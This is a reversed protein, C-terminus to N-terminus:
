HSMCVSLAIAQFALWKSMLPWFQLDAEEAVPSQYSKILYSEPKIEGCM